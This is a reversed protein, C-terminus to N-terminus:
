EDDEDEDDDEYEYEYEDEEEEELEKKLEEIREKIEEEDYFYELLENLPENQYNSVRVFYFGEGEVKKYMYYTCFPTDDYFSLFENAVENDAYEVEVEELSSVLYCSEYDVQYYIEDFIDDSELLEDKTMIGTFFYSDFFFYEADISNITGLTYIETNTMNWYDTEVEELNDIIENIKKVKEEDKIKKLVEYFDEGASNEVDIGLEKLEEIDEEKFFKIVLDEPVVGRIFNNGFDVFTESEYEYDEIDFDTLEFLYLKMM